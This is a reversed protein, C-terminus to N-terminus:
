LQIKIINIRLMGQQSLQAVAAPLQTSVAVPTVGVGPIKIEAGEPSNVVYKLIPTNQLIFLM